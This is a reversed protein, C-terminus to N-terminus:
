QIFQRTKGYTISALARLVKALYLTLLQEYGVVCYPVPIRTSRRSTASPHRCDFLEDEDYEPYKCNCHFWCFDASSDLFDNQLWTPTGRVNRQCEKTATPTPLFGGDDDDNGGILVGDGM